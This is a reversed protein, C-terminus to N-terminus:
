WVDITQCSCNWGIKGLNVVFVIWIYRLDFQYTETVKDGVSYIDKGGVYFKSASVVGKDNRWFAVGFDKLLTLM